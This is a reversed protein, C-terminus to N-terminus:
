KQKPRPKPFSTIIKGDNSVVTYINSKTGPVPYNYTRKNDQVGASDGKEISEGVLKKIKNPNKVGLEKGFTTIPGGEHWIGLVHKGLIHALGYDGSHGTGRGETLQAKRGQKDVFEQPHSQKAKKPTASATSVQQKPPKQAPVTTSKTQKAGPKSTSKSVPSPLKAAPPQATPKSSNKKGTKNTTM